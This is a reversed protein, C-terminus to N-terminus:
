GKDIAENAIQTSYAKGSHNATEHLAKDLSCEGSLAQKAVYSIHANNSVRLIETVTEKKDM